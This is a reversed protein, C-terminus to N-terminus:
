LCRPATLLLRLTTFCRLLFHAAIPIFVFPRFSGLTAGALLVLANSCLFFVSLLRLPFLSAVILASLCVLTHPFSFAHENAQVPHAEKKEQLVCAM